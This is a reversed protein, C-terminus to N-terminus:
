FYLKDKCYKRGISVQFTILLNLASLFSLDNVEKKSNGIVKFNEVIMQERFRYCNFSPFSISIEGEYTKKDSKELVRIQGM